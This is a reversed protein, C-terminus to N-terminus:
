PSSSSPLALCLRLYCIASPLCGGVAAHLRRNATQWDRLMLLGVILPVGLVGQQKCAVALGLALGAWFPRNSVAAWAAIVLWLTLWPDTFATPAFLIAFPSATVLAAAVLATQRDYIRRALAYTAPILLVGAIMNPLRLALVSVGFLKLSVALLYIALPPKDVWPTLLWPDRGSAILRAWFGYLAEDRHLPYATLWPIVRFALGCAVLFLLPLSQVIASLTGRQKPCQRNRIASNCCGYWDAIRLGFDAIM